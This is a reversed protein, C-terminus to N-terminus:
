EKNVMKERTVEKINKPYRTQDEDESEPAVESVEGFVAIEGVARIDNVPWNQLDQDCQTECSEIGSHKEQEGNGENAQHRYEHPMQDLALEQSAAVM